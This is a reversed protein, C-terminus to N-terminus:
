FRYQSTACEKCKLTWTYHLAGRTQNVVQMKEFPILTFKNAFSRRAGVAERSYDTEQDNLVVM